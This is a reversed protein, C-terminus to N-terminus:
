RAAAVASGAFRTSAQTSTDFLMRSANWVQGSAAPAEDPVFSTRVPRDGIM